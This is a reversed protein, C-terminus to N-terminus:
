INFLYYFPILQFITSQSVPRVFVKFGIFSSFFLKINIGLFTFTANLLYSRISNVLIPHFSIEASM